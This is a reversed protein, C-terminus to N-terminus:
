KAAADMRKVAELTLDIGPEVVLIVGADGASFLVHLGKEKSIVELIPLLKKQFEQQLEQQLENLEAQADQEFRQGEVTQREIDKELQARATDSMVSGGTQLKTQNAQLAKAKEAGENQKKQALANVKAAAAKGDATM